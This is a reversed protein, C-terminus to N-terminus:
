HIDAETKIDNEPLINLHLLTMKMHIYLLNYHPHFSYNYLYNMQIVSLFMADTAKLHRFYLMATDRLQCFM